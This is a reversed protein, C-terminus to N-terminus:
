LFAIKAHRQHAATRFVVARGVRTFSRCNAVTESEHSTLLKM